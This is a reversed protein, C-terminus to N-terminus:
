GLNRAAFSDREIRRLLVASAAADRLSATAVTPTHVQTSAPAGAAEQSLQGLRGVGRAPVPGPAACVCRVRIDPNRQTEREDELSEARRPRSPTNWEGTPKVLVRARPM